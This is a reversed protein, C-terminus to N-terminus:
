PLFDIPFRDPFLILISVTHVLLCVKISIEKAKGKKKDAFPTVLVSVPIFGTCNENIQLLSEDGVIVPVVGIDACSM